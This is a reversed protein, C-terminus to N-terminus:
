FFILILKFSDLSSVSVIPTNSLCLEHNKFVLDFTSYNLRNDRTNGTHEEAFSYFPSVSFSPELNQETM